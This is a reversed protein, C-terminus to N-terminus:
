VIMSTVICFGSDIWERMSWGKWGCGAKHDDAVVCDLRGFRIEGTVGV